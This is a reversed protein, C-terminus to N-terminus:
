RDLREKIASLLKYNDQETAFARKVILERNFYDLKRINIAESREVGGDLKSVTRRLLAFNTQKQSPLRSLTAWLLEYENERMSKANSARLFSDIGNEVELEFFETGDSAAM